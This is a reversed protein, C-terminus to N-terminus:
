DGRPSGCFQSAHYERVVDLIARVHNGTTGSPGQGDDIDWMKIRQWIADFLGDKLMEPTPDLEARGVLREVSRIDEEIGFIYKEIETQMSQSAITAAKLLRLKDLSDRLEKLLKLM